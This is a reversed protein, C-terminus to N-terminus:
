LTRENLLFFSSILIERSWLTYYITYYLVTYYRATTVTTNNTENYKIM